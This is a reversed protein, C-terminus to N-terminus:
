HVHTRTLAIKQTIERSYRCKLEDLSCMLERPYPRDREFSLFFPAYLYFLQILRSLTSSLFTTWASSQVIFRNKELQNVLLKQDPTGVWETLFLVSSKNRKSVM